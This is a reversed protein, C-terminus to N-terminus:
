GRIASGEAHVRKTTKRRMLGTVGKDAEASSLPKESFKFCKFPTTPMLRVLLGFLLGGAGIAICIAHQELTLPSCRVPEGGVSVLAIQVLITMVVVILFIWNNFFGHFVNLENSKLKRCHIENFVQLFVFANFFITFHVGNEITWKEDLTLGSPVDFIDPGLFLIVLLWVSQYFSQGIINKMMDPTILSDETKNPKRDLLSDNPPETALALAAFTDMILNVWLMQVATLPSKQTIAAGIFSLVLAVINVTLQFQIFKSICDYINRGWKIATVISAFNDDLLVIDSAEQALQTGAEHMAFGVNSKKLAPADNSGDGTVAVIEGLQRLGTVLIFKDEPSSRSLVRLKSAIKTFEAMNGVVKNRPRKDKEASTDNPDDILKGVRERFESGLMVTDDDPSEKKYNKPLINCKRAIAVATEINDGTVMRVTIGAKQSVEVANPVEDRLPDEIGCICLLTLDRELEVQNADGKGDIIPFDGGIHKYALTLTRYARGAYDTIIGNMEEKDQETIYHEHGDTGVVKTCMGLVTESAGKVLVIHGDGKKLVTVMRKLKSSFPIQVSILDLDRVDSYNTGLVAALKLLAIETRSGTFKEKKKDKEIEVTISATSNHCFHEVLLERVATSFESAKIAEIKKKECYMAVVEMINKTLTGTKDSCIATAQGMTESADLHRVLNNQEKMKSVSYALSITVALPLGEPVAVVVITIAIIFSSILKSWSDDTWGNEVTHVVLYIILVGFTLLAVILGVKGIGSAIRNLKMQLPTESEDEQQMLERNKGQFSHKGVAVVLATGSGEEVQSGSILFPTEGHDYGKKLPKSEGTVSSENLVLQNSHVVIADVPLIDGAGIKIVDGVLLKFVSIQDEKNNGKARFVTVLREQAEENLKRFQKEKIWNNVSTVLVVIVVAVLIAVGELWGEEPDEWIGVVLSVLAAAILIRLTTDELAEWVMEVFTRQKKVQPKNTGYYSKRKKILEKDMNIGAKKDTKLKAALGDLGGLRNLAELSKGHSISELIFFDDLVDPKVDFHHDSGEEKSLLPQDLNSQGDM